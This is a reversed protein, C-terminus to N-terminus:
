SLNTVLPFFLRPFGVNHKVIANELTKLTRNGLVFRLDSFYDANTKM